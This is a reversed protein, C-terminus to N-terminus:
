GPWGGNGLSWGDSGFRIAGVSRGGGDNTRKQITNAEWYSPRSSQQRFNNKSPNPDFSSLCPETQRRAIDGADDEHHLSSPSALARVRAQNLSEFKFNFCCMVIMVKRIWLVSAGDRYEAM